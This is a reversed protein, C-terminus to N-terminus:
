LAGRLIAGAIARRLAAVAVPATEFAVPARAAAREAYLCAFVGCDSGNRQRPVAEAAEPHLLPWPGKLSELSCRQGEAELYETMKAWFGGPPDLGLSDLYLLGRRRFDVVGLAWHSGGVNLPLLIMELRGYASDDLGARRAWRQVAPHGGEQLKPWFFSNPCWCRGESREQVLRLYCNVVEDNLWEDPLLCALHRRTMEAGFRICLVEGPFDSARLADLADVVSVEEARADLAGVLDSFFRRWHALDASSTCAWPLREIDRQAALVAQLTRDRSEVELDVAQECEVDTSSVLAAYGEQTTKAPTSRFSLEQRASRWGASHVRNLRRLRELRRLRLGRRARSIRLLAAPAPRCQLSPADDFCSVMAVM